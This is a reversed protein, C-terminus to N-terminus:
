GGRLRMMLHLVSDKEIFYDQLTKGDELQKGQYILRQQNPPIAEKDQIKMKVDEVPSDPEVELVIHKGVLTKVFIMM